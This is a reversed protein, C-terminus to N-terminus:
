YNVNVRQKNIKYNYEFNKRRNRMYIIYIYYEQLLWLAMNIKQFGKDWTLLSKSLVDLVM